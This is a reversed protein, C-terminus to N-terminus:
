LPLEIQAATYTTRSSRYAEIVETIRDLLETDMQGQEPIDVLKIGWEHVCKDCFGTYTGMPTENDEMFNQGFMVDNTKCKPCVLESLPMAKM